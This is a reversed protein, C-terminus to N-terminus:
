IGVPEATLNDGCNEARRWRLYEAKAAARVREYADDRETM